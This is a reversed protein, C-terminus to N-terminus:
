CSIALPNNGIMSMCVGLSLVAGDARATPFDFLIRGLLGSKELQYLVKIRSKMVCPSMSSSNNYLGIINQTLHNTLDSAPCNSLQLKMCIIKMYMHSIFCKEGSSFISLNCPFWKNKHTRMHTHTHTETYNHTCYTYRWYRQMFNKQTHTDTNTATQMHHMHTGTHTHTHTHTHTRTDTHIEVIISLM